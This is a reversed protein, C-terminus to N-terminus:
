THTTIRKLSLSLMDDGLCCGEDSRSVVELIVEAEAELEAAEEVLSAAELLPLSFIATITAGKM